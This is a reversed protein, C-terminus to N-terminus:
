ISIGSDQLPNGIFTLAKTPQVGHKANRIATYIVYPQKPRKEVSLVEFGYEKLKNRMEHEKFSVGVLTGGKKRSKLPGAGWVEFRFVGKPKLVRSAESLYLYIYKKEPIHRFVALSYCLDFYNDAFASLSGDCVSLSINKHTKLRERGQLIMERSIDVGYAEEVYRSLPKLLRGIGCGIELARVGSNLSIDKLVIERVERDGSEDFEEETKWADWYIYWRANKRSRLDWDKAMDGTGFDLGNPSTGLNYLIRRVQPSLECVCEMLYKIAAHLLTFRKIKFWLNAIM